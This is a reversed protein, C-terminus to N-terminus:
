SRSKLKKIHARIMNKLKKELDCIGISNLMWTRTQNQSSILWVRAERENVSFGNGM